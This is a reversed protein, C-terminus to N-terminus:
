PERALIIRFGAQRLAHVADRWSPEHRDSGEKPSRAWGAITRSSFGTIRALENNSVWEGRVPSRLKSMIKYFDGDVIEPEILNFLEVLSELEADENKSM